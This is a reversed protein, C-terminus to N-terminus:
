SKVREIKKGDVNVLNYIIKLEKPNYSYLLENTYPFLQGNDWNVYCRGDEIKKITGIKESGGKFVVKDGVQFGTIGHVLKLKNLIKKKEKYKM